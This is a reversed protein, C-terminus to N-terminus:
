DIVELIEKLKSAPIQGPASAKEGAGFTMASGFTGGALRSIVGLGGMSMTVVPKRTREETMIRTAELLELVDASSQPMVAIKLIDAGMEGMSTLRNVIEAKTPTMTFDHNSAIVLNNYKHVEQVMKTFTEEGKFLEVDIIDAFGAKSAEVNISLYEEETYDREGGENKTRITFLLPTEGIIERIREGTEIVLGINKSDEYWDVRWEVIDVPLEKMQLAADLIEEKTEGVIPVCIKPIGEGLIITRIQIPQVSM